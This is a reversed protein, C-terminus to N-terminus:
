YLLLLASVSFYVSDSVAALWELIVKFSSTEPGRGSRMAALGACCGVISAAASASERNSALASFTATAVSAVAFVDGLSALLASVTFEAPMYFEYVPSNWFFSDLAVFICFLLPIAFVGSRRMSCEQLHSYLLFTQAATLSAASTWQWTSRVSIVRSAVFFLFYLLVTTTKSSRCRPAHTHTTQTRTHTYHQLPSHPSPDLAFTLM